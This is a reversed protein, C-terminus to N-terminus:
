SQRFVGQAVAQSIQENLLHRRRRTAFTQQHSYDDGVPHGYGVGQRSQGDLTTPQPGVDGRRDAALTRRFQAERWGPAAILSVDLGGTRVQSAAGM